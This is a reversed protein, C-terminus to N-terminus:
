FTKGRSHWIDFGFYASLGACVGGVIRKDADRFLKKKNDTKPIERNKYYGFPYGITTICLNVNSIDIIKTTKQNNFFNFVQNDEDFDSTQATKNNEIYYKVDALYQKLIDYADEEIQFVTESLSINFVKKM